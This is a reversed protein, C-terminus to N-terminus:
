NATPRTQLLGKISESKLISFNYASSVRSDAARVMKLTVYIAGGGDAYTGVLVTDANLTAGIANLERTLLFEGENRNVFLNESLKVENVQVGLQALRSSLQESLLRGFASSKQLNNIDAVTAVLVGKSGFPTVLPSLKQGKLLEDVAVYSAAVMPSEKEASVPSPPVYEYNTACGTISSMLVLSFIYATYLKM